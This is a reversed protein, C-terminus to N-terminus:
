LILESSYAEYFPVASLDLSIYSNTNLFIYIM